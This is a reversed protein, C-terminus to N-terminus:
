RVFQMFYAPFLCRWREALATSLICGRNLTEAVNHMSYMYINPERFPIVGSGPLPDVDVFFGAASLAVVDVTSPLYDVVYDVLSVAAQGGAVLVLPAHVSLLPDSLLM